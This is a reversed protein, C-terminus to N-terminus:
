EDHPRSALRFHSATGTFGRYKAQIMLFFCFGLGTSERGQAQEQHLWDRIRHGNVPTRDAPFAFRSTLLAVGDDEFVIARIVQKPQGIFRRKPM